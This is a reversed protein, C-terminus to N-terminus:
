QESREKKNRARDIYCVPGRGIYIHAGSRRRIIGHYDRVVPIHKVTATLRHRDPGIHLISGHFAASNCYVPRYFNKILRTHYGAFHIKYVIDPVARINIIVRISFYAFASKVPAAHPCPQPIIIILIAPSVAAKRFIPIAPNRYFELCLSFPRFEKFGRSIFRKCHIFM